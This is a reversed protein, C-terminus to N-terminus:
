RPFRWEPRPSPSGQRDCPAPVFPLSSHPLKIAFFVRATELRPNVRFESGSVQFRALAGHGPVEGAIKRFEVARLHKLEFFGEALIGVAISPFANKQAVLIEQPAHRM